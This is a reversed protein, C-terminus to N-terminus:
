IHLTCTTKFKIDKYNWMGVSIKQYIDGRYIKHQLTDMLGQISKLTRGLSSNPEYTLSKEVNENGEIHFHHAFKDKLLNKSAIEGSLRLTADNVIIRCPLFVLGQVLKLSPDGNKSQM